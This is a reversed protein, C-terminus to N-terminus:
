KEATRKQTLSLEALGEHFQVRALMQKEQQQVIQITTQQVRDSIEKMKQQLHAMLPGGTKVAKLSMLQEHLEDMRQRYETGRERLSVIQEECKSVEDFLKVLKTMQAEVAEDPKALQLYARVLEVGVPTRLDVTRVLPTSEEIEVTKTEGAALTVEYLRSEGYQEAAKPGKTVAWGRLSQHRVLVTVPKFQRNTVKLKTLKWHQVEATLVGRHLKVLQSMRDGTSGERDVVVQRDLAFPVVATQGPPIPEALGEGIFRGEGYVTMPGSELTSQTPNVFRVSKFAFRSDGHRSEADYLYVVEGKAKQNVVAVMASTGKAVTMAGKSEFHSEGVPAGDSEVPKKDEGPAVAAAVVRVGSRRGAVAGKAAIKVQAPPVGREILQNRMLNARDASRASPDSEGAEAYGEIVVTRRSGRINKALEEVQRDNLQEEKKADKDERGSRAVKYARQNAAAPARPANEAYMKSGGAMGRAQIPAAEYDAVDPHGENRAIDEDGLAALEMEGTNDDRIVSGGKPPAKAFTDESQLTERHVTRISHLDYRFSLASSSGVGVRVSDWDEGSTNDVIAWGQIDVEGKDAVVVRYTPKWAPSETVYSLVVERPNKDPFQVVMETEGAVKRGKSPFSVPLTQGSKADTVTLSKLFDDVKDAPVQMVLKGDIVKAHREYYAIGNRYVVVRGLAAKETQVYSAHTAGCASLAASMTVLTLVQRLSVAAIRQAARSLIPQSSRSVLQTRQSM